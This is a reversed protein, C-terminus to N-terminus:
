ETRLSNAPNSTAARYTVSSVSVMAIAVSLLAGTIFIGASIDTKYVFEDLWKTGVWLVFPCAIVNAIIVIMLFERAMNAVVSPVTAGYTKLIAIKKIRQETMFVALGILGLICILIALLTFYIFIKGLREDSKYMIDFSDEIFRYDQPIGPAFEEMIDQIKKMAPAIEGEKIKINLYNFWGPNWALMLPEIATRFSKFHFDKVVGIIRIDTVPFMTIYWSDHHFSEDVPDELGIMRALTENIICNSVSDTSIKADFDRGGLLELGFTQIYYPDISFVMTSVEKNKIHFGEYNLNSGPITYSYSVNLIEPYELMRERVKDMNRLVPLTMEITLIREKEFGLDKERTYKLQKAILLSSNILIVSILFQFLILGRRFGLSKRGRTIEGRIVQITKYSSIYYAPYIGALLGTVLIIGILVPITYPNALYTIDLNNGTINNFYPLLVEALLVGMITSIGSILLAETLFKGILTSKKSGVLKRLGVEKARKIAVATSLNIFNICAIVIILIAIAIFVKILNYNGHTLALEHASRDFYINGLPNLIVKLGANRDSDKFNPFLEALEDYIQEELGFPDIGGNLRFYTLWQQTSYTHLITPNRLGLTILSLLADYQLHSDDRKKIVGTILFSFRGSQDLLTLGTPNIDGFITKSIEDTLVISLPKSLADEPSGYIWTQEFFDFFTSDALCIRPINFYNVEDKKLIFNESFQIRLVDEIGAIRDKLDPGIASVMVANKDRDPYQFELRYINDRHVFAKDTSLEKIVYLGILLSFTVGITLGVINIITIGKNRALNRVSTTFLQKLM